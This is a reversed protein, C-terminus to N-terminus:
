GLVFTVFGMPRRHGKLWSVVANSVEDRAPDDPHELAWELRPRLHGLDFADFETQTSDHMDLILWGAAAAAEAIDSLELCDAASADPWMSVLEEATPQSRWYEAGFLLRGGPELRGRLETLAEPITGFAQYAGLNVVVEAPDAHGRAEAAKFHAREGLGRESALQQARQIDPAHVDIGTGTAEPWRQLMRLLLEGWGSGYDVITRPQVADLRDLLRAVADDGLPSNFTLSTGSGIPPPTQSMREM